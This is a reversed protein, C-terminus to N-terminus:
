VYQYKQGSGGRKRPFVEEMWGKKPPQVKEKPGDGMIAYRMADMFHNDKPVPLDQRRPDVTGPEPYHYSEFETLHGKLDEFVNLRHENVLQRIYQVGHKISSVNSGQQDRAMKKKYGLAYLGSQNAQQVNEPNASDCYWTSVKYLSQYEQAVRIIETPTVSPETWEDILYYGDRSIGVISIAPHHFGWDIGGIVRDFPMDQRKQINWKDLEYVLGTMRTFEGMYRRKFEETPLRKKEADLHEKSAYPNDYSSWTYVSIRLDEKNRWPEYIDQYLFGMNYPTTTILIKGKTVTMRTKVVTWSMADCQGFEDLWAWGPSMGEVGLPRDFSRIFIIYPESEGNANVRPIEIVNEQKKYFQRYTPFEEFFKQLTSQQLIKYTPAGILGPRPKDKKWEEGIQNAAWYAGM